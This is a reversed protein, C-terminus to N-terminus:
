QRRIKRLIGSFSGILDDDQLVQGRAFVMRGTERMVEVVADLPRSTDGPAFFQHSLDVTVGNAMNKGLLLSSGSFLAVDIFALIAGGHIAGLSNGLLERPFIRIRAHHADDLRVLMLGLVAQNFQKEGGVRWEQWGPHDPHDALVISGDDRGVVTM